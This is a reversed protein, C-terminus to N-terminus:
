RRPIRIQQHNFVRQQAKKKVMQLRKLALSQMAVNQSSSSGTSTSPKSTATSSSSLATNSSLAPIAFSQHTTPSPSPQFSCLVCQFNERTQEAFQMVNGLPMRWRKAQSALREIIEFPQCQTTNFNVVTISFVLPILLKSKFLVSLHLCISQKCYAKEKLVQQTRIGALANPFLAMVSFPNCRSM